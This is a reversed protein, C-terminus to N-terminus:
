PKKKLLQDIDKVLKTVTEKMDELEPDPNRQLDLKPDKKYDLADIAERLVKQLADVFDKQPQEKALSAIGQHNKEEDGALATRVAIVRHLVRCRFPIRKTDKMKDLANSSGDAALQALAVATDVPNIGNAQSYDLHGLADAAACRVAYPLKANAVLKMLATFVNNNQGVSGLSGLGEAAQAVIWTQASLVTSDPVEATALRLLLKTVRDQVDSSSIGASIHRLVGIMAAVHLSESLKGAEVGPLLVDLAEPFPMAPTRGVVESRNLEGIALMANVKAAPHYNGKILKKMFELVLNLLADRAQGPAASRLHSALDQRYKHLHRINEQVTWRALFYDNYYTEFDSSAQADAFRGERLTSRIKSDWRRLEKVPLRDYQQEPAGEDPEAPEPAETEAAPQNHPTQNRNTPRRGPGGPPVQASSITASFVVSGFIVAVLFAVSSWALKTGGLPLSTRTMPM